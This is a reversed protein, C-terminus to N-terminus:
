VLEIRLTSYIDSVLDEYSFSSKDVLEKLEDFTYESREGKKEIVYKDGCGVLFRDYLVKDNVQSSTCYMCIDDFDVKETRSGIAEVLKRIVEFDHNFCVNFYMDEERLYYGAHPPYEFDLGNMDFKDSVSMNLLEHIFIWYAEYAKENKEQFVVCGKETEALIFSVKKFTFRVINNTM